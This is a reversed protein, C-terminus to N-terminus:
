LSYLIQSLKGDFASNLFNDLDELRKSRIISLMEMEEGCVFIHREKDTLKLCDRELQNLNWENELLITKPDRLSMDNDAGMLELLTIINPFNNLTNM